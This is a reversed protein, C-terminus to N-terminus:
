RSSCGQYKVETRFADQLLLKDPFFAEERGLECGGDAQVSQLIIIMNITQLLSTPFMELVIPFHM